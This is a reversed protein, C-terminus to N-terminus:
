LFPIDASFAAMLSVTYKFRNALFHMNSSNETIALIM